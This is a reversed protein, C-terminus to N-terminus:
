FSRTFFDHNFSKTVKKGKQQIAGGLKLLKLHHKPDYFLSYPVPKHCELNFLSFIFQMIPEFTENIKTSQAQQHFQMQFPSHRFRPSLNNHHVVDFGKFILVYSM